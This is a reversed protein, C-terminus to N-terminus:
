KEKCSEPPKTLMYINYINVIQTPSPSHYHMIFQINIIGGYFIIRLGCISFITIIPYFPSFMLHKVNLQLFFIYIIKDHINWIMPFASFDLKLIFLCDFDIFWSLFVFINSLYFLNLSCFAKSWRPSFYIRIWATPYYKLSTSLVDWTIAIWINDM